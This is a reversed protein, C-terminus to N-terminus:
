RECIYNKKRSGYQDLKTLNTVLTKGITEIKKFLGIIM